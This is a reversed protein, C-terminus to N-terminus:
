ERIRYFKIGSPQVTWPSKAGTVDSFTGSVTDAQQLTGTGPWSLIVKGAQLAATVSTAARGQSHALIEAPMLVKPYFAVSGVQGAWTFAGDSRAGISFVSDANAVYNTATSVASKVGDVYLYGISGDWVLAIHQWRGALPATGGTINVATATANTNYTRLNWGTPSQYLLWGARPSAVHMSALPCTLTTGTVDVSPNLWAEVTFAGAPNLDASYPASIITGSVGDVGVSKTSFPADQGYVISGAYTADHGSWIDFAVTGDTENLPWLSAPASQAVAALYGTLAPLLTLTASASTISGTENTITVSYSGTDSSQIGAVTLTASDAGVPTTGHYWQYHLPQGGGAVVTFRATGGAALTLPSPQTLIYPPPTLTGYWGMYSQLQVQGPTLAYAYIAIEDISGNFYDTSDRVDAGIYSVISGDLDVPTGTASAALTGDIYIYGSSGSRVAVVQHWLGDNVARKTAFDYQTTSNGYVIFSVTGDANLLYRYEGNYGASSRQQLIVGKSTSTTNVWASVTFDTKGALSPGTGLTVYSSAGDLQLATNASGFGPQTPTQPGAVGLQYGGQLSGDSSGAYDYITEGTLENMPWYAIPQDKVAQGAFLGPTVVALSVSASTATGYNNRVVVSYSGVQTATVNTLTLSANTAGSIATGNKRWQYTLTPAGDAVVSLTRNVGAYVSVTGGPLDTVFTPPDGRPTSPVAGTWTSAVRLEDIWGNNVSPGHAVIRIKNFAFLVYSGTASPTAPEAALSPNVYLSVITNSSTFDFRYVLLSLQSSAVTSAHSASGRSGWGWPGAFWSSGLFIRTDSDEVLEVGAWGTNTVQGLFSVYLTGRGGLKALMERINEFDSEGSAALQLANGATTLQSTSDTYVEGPAFVLNMGNYGSSQTWAGAWGTGGNLDNLISFDDYAFGEYPPLSSLVSLTTSKSTASGLANTVVVQYTGVDAAQLNKLILSANTAGAIAVGDKKWQYGLPEVGGATISLTETMTSYNTLVPQNLDSIIAPVELVLVKVVVSSGTGYANSVLLDYDGSDMATAGTKSYTASTAGPINTGAHRWQYTLPAIGVAGATLTITAGFNNTSGAPKTSVVPKDTILFGALSARVTGSRAVSTIVISDSTLVSSAASRAALASSPGDPPVTVPYSTYALSQSNVGDSISVNGFQTAGESSAITQVVYGSPFASSLASVTVSYGPAGDDLYGWTVEDDGPAVTSVDSGSDYVAGIDSGWGNAASWDVSINGRSTPVTETGVAAVSGDGVAIISHWDAADIGFAKGTVPFGSTWQSGGGAYSAWDVQWNVGVSNGAHSQGLALSAACAALGYLKLSNFRKRIM